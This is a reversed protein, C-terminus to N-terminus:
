NLLDSLYKLRKEESFLNSIKEINAQIQSDTLLSSFEEFTLDKITNSDFVIIGNDKMLQYITSQKKLYVKKGMRILTAINGAAQTRNHYMVAIDVNELLERYKDLPMFDRISIWKNAFILKGQGAIYNGYKMNGYNLPCLIKIDNSSYGGLVSMADLHNNTETASNGLLITYHTRIIKGRDPINQIYELGLGYYFDKFAANCGYVRNVIEFDLVNWHCFYNLRKLFKKRIAFKRDHGKSKMKEFYVYDFVQYLYNLLYKIWHYVSNRKNIEVYRKTLVDFNLEDLEKTHAVFDGGWFFLYVPVALDIKNIVQMVREHFWHIYVRDGITIRDLINKLKPRSYPAFIGRTSKVYTAPLRFTFIYINKNPAVKEASEIFRDIFKDDVMLHYNM